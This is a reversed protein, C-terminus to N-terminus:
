RPLGIVTDPDTPFSNDMVARNLKAAAERSRSKECEGTLFAARAMDYEKAADAFDSEAIRLIATVMPDRTREPVLSRLGVWQLLAVVLTPPTAAGAIADLAARASKLVEIADDVRKCAPTLHDRKTKQESLKSFFRDNAYM